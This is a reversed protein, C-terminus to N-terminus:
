KNRLALEEELLRKYKNARRKWYDLPGQEKVLNEYIKREREAEIFKAKAKNAHSFIFRLVYEQEDDSLQSTIYNRGRKLQL